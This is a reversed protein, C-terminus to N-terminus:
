QRIDSQNDIKIFADLVLRLELPAIGSAYLTDRMSSSSLPWDGARSSASMDVSLHRSYEATPKPAAYSSSVTKSFM